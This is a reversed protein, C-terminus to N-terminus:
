TRAAPCDRGSIRHRPDDSHRSGCRHSTTHLEVGTMGPMQVDAVLCATTTLLPSALFEAASPFAEVAYGLSMMLKRMSECFTLRGRRGIDIHTEADRSEPLKGQRGLPAGGM